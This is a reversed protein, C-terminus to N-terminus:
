RVFLYLKRIAVQQSKLWVPCRPAGRMVSPLKIRTFIDGVEDSRVPGQGVHTHAHVAARQRPRTRSSGSNVADLIKLDRVMM